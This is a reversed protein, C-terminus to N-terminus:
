LLLILGLIFFLVVLSLSWALSGTLFLILSIGLPGLFATAKGSFTFFGFMQTMLPKPAIKALYARCSAQVPGVFLGLFLGSLWFQAETSSLLAFTSFFILGVLSLIMVNRSGIRDDFFAFFFAGVGASLNLSIGFLLITKESMNFTSAAYIGGFAFLTLLGDIFFMRAIFFRCLSGQKQLTSLSHLLEKFGKSVAEKMGLLIPTKPTLLFLPISFLAHWAACLIFASSVDVTLALMLSLIGGLYGAAWGWGSWLGIKGAPALDPLMANYFIYAFESGMTAVGFLVLAMTAAGAHPRVWWLGSVAIINLLTFCLTWVKRGGSFDAISGLAPGLAAIIVGSIGLTLGWAETGQEQTEAIVKVFYAPLVFTEVIASYASNAFDYLAWSVLSIQAQNRQKSNAMM